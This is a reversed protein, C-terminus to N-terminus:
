SPGPQALLDFAQATDLIEWVERVLGDAFEFLWHYECAYEAGTRTRATRRAHLAVFTGGGVCHEVHWESTGAEFVGPGESLFALAARGIMPRDIGRKAASEPVWWRIDSHMMSGLVAEDREALADLFAIALDCHGARWGPDSVDSM